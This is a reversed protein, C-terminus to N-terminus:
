VTEPVHFHAVVLDMEAVDTVRAGVARMFEERMARAEKRTREFADRSEFSTVGIARGAKRDVVMSLSCFGPLEQLRPVLSSRFAELLRDVADPSIRAWTVQARADDGSPRERHVVAVDWRQILADDAGMIQMLRDQMPRVKAASEKMAQEDAWSTAVVCRGNARDALMSLGVCGGMQTVSPFEEEGIYSIADDVAEPDGQVTTSRAFYM